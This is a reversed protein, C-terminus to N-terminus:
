VFSAMMGFGTTTPVLDAYTYEEQKPGSKVVLTSHKYKGTDILADIAKKNDNTERIMVRCNLAGKDLKTIDSLGSSSAIVVVASAHPKSLKLHSYERYMTFDYTIGDCISKRLTGNTDFQKAFDALSSVDTGTIVYAIRGTEKVYADLDGYRSKRLVRNFEPRKNGDDFVWGSLRTDHRSGTRTSRVFLKYDDNQHIADLVDLSRDDEDLLLVYRQSGTRVKTPLDKGSVEIVNLQPTGGLKQFAAGTPVEGNHKAM